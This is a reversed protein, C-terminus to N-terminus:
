EFSYWLSSNDLPIANGRAFSQPFAMYNYQKQITAM